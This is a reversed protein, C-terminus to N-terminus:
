NFISSGQKNEKTENKSVDVFRELLGHRDTQGYDGHKCVIKEAVQNTISNLIPANTTPTPLCTTLCNHRVAYPRM